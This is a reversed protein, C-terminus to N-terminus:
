SCGGLTGRTVGQSLRSTRPRIGAQADTGARCSRSGTGLGRPPHPQPAPCSWGQKPPERAEFAQQPPGEPQVARSPSLGPQPRGTPATGASQCSFLGQPDGHPLGWTRMLLFLDLGRSSPGHTGPGQSGLAPPKGSPERVSPTLLALGLGPLPQLAPAEGPLSTIPVLAPLREPRHQQGDTSLLHHLLGKGPVPLSTVFSWFGGTGKSPSTSDWCPSACSGAGRQATTLGCGALAAPPWRTPLHPM